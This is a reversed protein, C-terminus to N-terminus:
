ARPPTATSSDRADGPPTALLDQVRRGNRHLARRLMPGAVVVDVLRGVLGGPTKWAIQVSVRTGGDVREFTEHAHYALGIPTVGEVTRWRGPECGTVRWSGEREVRGLRWVQTYGAGPRDFPGRVDRMDALETNWDLWRDPDVFLRWVEAPGSPVDLAATVVGM